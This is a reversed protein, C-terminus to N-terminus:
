TSFLVEPPFRYARCIRGVDLAHTRIFTMDSESLALDVGMCQEPPRPDTKPLIAALASGAALTAAAGALFGRRTVPRDTM